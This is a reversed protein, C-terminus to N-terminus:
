QVLITNVPQFSLHHPKRIVDPQWMGYWSQVAPMHEPHSTDTM